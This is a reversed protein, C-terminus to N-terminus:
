IGRCAIAEASILGGYPGYGLVRKCLRHQWFLIRNVQTYLEGCWWQIEHDVNLGTYLCEPRDIYDCKWWFNGNCDAFAQALAYRQASPQDIARAPKPSSLVLAMGVLVMAIGKM